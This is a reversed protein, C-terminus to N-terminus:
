SPLPPLEGYRERLTEPTERPSKPARSGLEDESPKRTGAKAAMSIQALLDKCVKDENINAMINRKQAIEQKWQFLQRTYLPKGGNAEIKSQLVDIENELESIRGERGKGYAIIAAKLEAIAEDHNIDQHEAGPGSEDLAEDVYSSMLIADITPRKDPDEELMANRLRDFSTAITGTQRDPNDFYWKKPEMTGSGLMDLMAGLSFVDSSPTWHREDSNPDEAKALEPSVYRPTVPPTIEDPGLAIGGGEDVQRGSGLDAIKVTGSGDILYNAHKVDNHTLGQDKVYKLGKAAEGAIARLLANRAEPPLAGSETVQNLAEAFDKMDGGSCEEVLMHVGGSSDTLAGLMALLHRDGKGGEGGMALRHARMEDVMGARKTEGSSNPTKLVISSRDDECTYRYATCLGGAGLRQRGKYTKGNFTFSARDDSLRNPSDQRVREAMANAIKDGAQRQADSWKKMDRDWGLEAGLDALFAAPNKLLLDFVVDSGPDGVTLTKGVHEAVIRAIADIDVDDPPKIEKGDLGEPRPALGRLKEALEEPLADGLKYTALQKPKPIPLTDKSVLDQDRESDQKFRQKATELATDYKREADTYSTTSQKGTRQSVVGGDPQPGLARQQFTGVWALWRQNIADTVEAIRSDTNAIVRQGDLLQDHLFAETPADDLLVDLELSGAASPKRGM